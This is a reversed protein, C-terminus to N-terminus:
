ESNSSRVSRDPTRHRLGAALALAEPGAAPWSAGPTADLVTARMLRQLIERQPMVAGAFRVQTDDAVVITPFTEVDFEGILDSEDEIDIWHWHVSVGNRDLEDALSELVARYDDCLRCWAACLCAVHVPAADPM